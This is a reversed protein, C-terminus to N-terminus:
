LSAVEAGLTYWPRRKFDQDLMAALMNAHVEVGPLVKDVPTSHQDGLTSATAGVLVIKDKLSGPAIRDKLVEALPLYKFSARYPVLAAANEDVPIEFLGVKLTEL